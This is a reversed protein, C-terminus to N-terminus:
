SSRTARVSGIAGTLIEALRAQADSTGLLAQNLEIEIGSYERSSFVMRLHTTLGDATGRYPYNRRVRFGSQILRGKLRGALSKEWGRAPDYLLGIDARRRVGHLRPVFSHISLHLVRFGAEIRARVDAELTERYRHYYRELVAGKARTDLGCVYESFLRPHHRSRNLDVLLRTVEGEHLRVGLARALCRAVARAGPDWGRHGALVTRPFRDRYRAPVHNSAHECSLVLRIESM